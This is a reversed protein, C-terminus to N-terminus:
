IMGYRIMATLVHEIEIKTSRFTPSSFEGACMWCAYVCMDTEHQIFIRRRIRAEPVQCKFRVRAWLIEASM